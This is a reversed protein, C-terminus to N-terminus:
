AGSRLAADAKDIFEAIHADNLILPPLLGLLTKFLTTKGCGNPGLLCLLEGRAITFSIDAGIRRGHYGIALGRSEVVETGESM